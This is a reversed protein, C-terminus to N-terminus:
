LCCIDFAVVHQMHRGGAQTASITHSVTGPVACKDVLLRLAEVAGMRTHWLESYCCHLVRSLVEGLVAPYPPPGDSGGFGQGFGQGALVALGFGSDTGRSSPQPTEGSKANQTGGALQSASEGPPHSAGAVAASSVSGAATGSDGAGALVPTNPRVAGSEMTGTPAPILAAGDADTMAIDGGSGPASAATPARVLHAFPDSGPEFALPCPLAFTARAEAVLLLTDVFVGLAEM